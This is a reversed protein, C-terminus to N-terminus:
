VLIASDAVGCLGAYMHTMFHMYPTTYTFSLDEKDPLTTAGNKSYIAFRELHKRGNRRRRRWSELASLSLAAYPDGTPNLDCTLNPNFVLSLDFMDRVLSLLYSAVSAKKLLV